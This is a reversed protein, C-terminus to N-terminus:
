LERAIEDEFRAFITERLYDARIREINESCLGRHELAAEFGRELREYDGNEALHVREFQRLLQAAAGGGEYVVPLGTALYEYLKSPVAYHYAPDLRAFLVSARRYIELVQEWEIYGTFEINQLGMQEALGELRELEAGGGAIVFRVRPMRRAIHLLPELNQLKGVNGVYAATPQDGAAATGAMAEQLREFRGADIGNSVLVVRKGPFRETFYRHEAGNTVSILRFRGATRLILFRFIRGTLTSLPTGQNILYEWQLDRVDLIIAHHKAKRFFLPVIFISPVSVVLLPDDCFDISRFIRLCLSFERAFRRLYNGVAFFKKRVYEVSFAPGLQELAEQAARPDEGATYVRVPTKKSLSSALTYLRNAAATKEPYFYTSVIAIKRSSM